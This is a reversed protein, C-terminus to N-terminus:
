AASSHLEVLRQRGYIQREEQVLMEPSTLYFPFLDVAIYLFCRERIVEYHFPLVDIVEEM